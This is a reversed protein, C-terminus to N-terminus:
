QRIMMNMTMTMTPKMVMMSGPMQNLAGRLDGDSSGGDDDGGDDDNDDDDDDDDDDDAGQWLCPVYGLSLMMSGLM